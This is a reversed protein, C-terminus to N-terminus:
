HESIRDPFKHRGHIRCQYHFWSWKHAPASCICSARSDWSCNFTEKIGDQLLPIPKSISIIDFAHRWSFSYLSAKWHLLVSLEHCLGSSQLCLCYNQGKRLTHCCDRDGTWRGIHIFDAVEQWKECDILHNELFSLLM